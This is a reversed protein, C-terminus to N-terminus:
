RPASIPLEAQEDRDAYSLGYGYSYAALVNRLHYRCVDLAFGHLPVPRPFPQQADAVEKTSAANLLNVSLPTLENSSFDCRDGCNM